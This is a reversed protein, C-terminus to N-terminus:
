LIPSGIVGSPDSALRGRGLPRDPDGCPRKPMRLEDRARAGHRPPPVRDGADGPRAPRDPPHSRRRSRGCAIQLQARILRRPLAPSRAAGASRPAPSRRAQAGSAAIRSPRDARVADDVRGHRQERRRVRLVRDRELPRGAPLHPADHGAITRRAGSARDRLRDVEGGMEGDPPGGPAKPPHATLTSGDITVRDIAAAVPTGHFAIVEVLQRPGNFVHVDAEFPDFPPGFGSIGTLSGITLLSEGPCAHTGLAHIEEDSATCETVAGTDFRTGAPASYVVSRVPSPKGEGRAAVHLSLGTPSGPSTSTLRLSFDVLRGSEAAAPGAGAICVVALAGLAGLARKV